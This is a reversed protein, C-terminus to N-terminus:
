QNGGTICWRNEKEEIERREKIKKKEEKDERSKKLCFTM